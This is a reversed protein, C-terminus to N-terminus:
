RSATTPEFVVCVGCRLRTGLGHGTPRVDINAAELVAATADLDAVGVGVGAFPTTREPPFGLTEEECGPEVIEICQSGEGDLKRYRNPLDAGGYYLRTLCCAGNPHKSVSANFVRERTLHEVYAVLADPWDYAPLGFWRFGAEGGQGYDIRRSAQQVAGPQLQRQTCQEHTRQVNDSALLLLRIGWPPHLFHELHHGDAPLDVTTLEIYDDAFMVHASRQGLGVTEGSENVATLEAPGVISFGLLQMELVLEEISPALIGIHDISLTLRAM